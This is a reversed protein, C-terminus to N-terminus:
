VAKVAACQGSWALSASMALYLPRYSAPYSGTARTGSAHLEAFEAEEVVAPNRDRGGFAHSLTASLAKSLRQM